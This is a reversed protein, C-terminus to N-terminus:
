NTSLISSERIVAMLEKGSFVLFDFASVISVAALYTRRLWVLLLGPYM